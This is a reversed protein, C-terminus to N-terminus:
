FIRSMLLIRDDNLQLRLIGSNYPFGIVAFMPLSTYTFTVSFELSGPIFIRRSVHTVLGSGPALVALVYGIMESPYKLMRYIVM